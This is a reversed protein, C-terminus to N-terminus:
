RVIVKSVSNGQRRIYLGPAVDGIVRQGNLNYYEAPADTSDAEVDLIGAVEGTFTVNIPINDWMVQINFNAKGAADTTGTLNVDAIIQGEYLSMNKVEGTYTTIGNSESASVGPVVIDGLDVPGDGLDLSFHPLTITYVNEATPTVDITAPQNEAIKGGLMEITLYGSITM